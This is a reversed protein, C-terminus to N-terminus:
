AGSDLLAKKFLSEVDIEKKKSITARDIITGVNDRVLASGTFAFLENVSPKAFKKKPEISIQPANVNRNNAIRFPPDSLGADDAINGIVKPKENRNKAIVNKADAFFIM